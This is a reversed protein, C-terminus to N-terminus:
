RSEQLRSAQTGLIHRTAPNKIGDLLKKFDDARFEEEELLKEAAAHYLDDRWAELIRPSHVIELMKDLRGRKECIGFVQMMMYRGTDFTLVTEAIGDLVADLQGADALDVLSFLMKARQDADAIEMVAQLTKAFTQSLIESGPLQHNVAKLLIKAREARTKADATQEVIRSVSHMFDADAPLTANKFPQTSFLWEVCAFRSEEDAIGLISAFVAKRVAEAEADEGANRYHQYIRLMIDASQPDTPLPRILEATERLVEFRKPGADHFGALILLARAKPLPSPLIDALERLYKENEPTKKYAGSDVRVLTLMHTHEIIYYERIQPDEIKKITEVARDIKGAYSYSRAIEACGDYWRTGTLLDLTKEAKAIMLETEEVKNAIARCQKWLIDFFIDNRIVNNSITQATTVAQGSQRNALLAVVLAQLETDKLYFENLDDRGDKFYARDLSDLPSTESVTPRVAELTECAELLKGESRLERATNVANQLEPSVAATCLMALTLILITPIKRM